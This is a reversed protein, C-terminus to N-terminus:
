CYIKSTHHKKVHAIYKKANMPGKPYANGCITCATKCILRRRKTAGRKKTTRKAARRKAM